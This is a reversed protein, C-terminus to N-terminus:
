PERSSEQEAKSKKKRFLRFRRSEPPPKRGKWILAIGLICSLLGIFFFEYGQEGSRGTTFFVVLSIVGIFLFFQGVRGREVLM